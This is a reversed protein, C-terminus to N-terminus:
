KCPWAKTLAKEAVLLFPYKLAFQNDKAYKLTANIADLTSAKDPICYKDSKKLFLTNIVGVCFGRRFMANSGDDKDWRGGCAEVIDRALFDTEQASVPVVGLCLLIFPLIRYQM